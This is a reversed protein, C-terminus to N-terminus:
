QGTTLEVDLRRAGTELRGALRLPYALEPMAADASDAEPTLVIARTEGALVPLNSPAFSYRRGSADTGDVLGDLRGHANGTNRVLLVPLRRGGIERLEHGAVELRAAADGVAVYVIIGIRGAVPVALSGPLAEPEGELLIAFRCEGAAADAPVAVEFRYRRKGNGAVSIEAAEIGVWPRCSGPALAPDFLVSGDPDLQWDATRLRYRGPDPSVNTIDIVSRVTQGPRATAEIRPPSVLVSFGQAAATAPALLGAALALVPFLRGVHM